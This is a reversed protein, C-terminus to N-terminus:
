FLRKHNVLEMFNEKQGKSILRKQEKIKVRNGEIRDIKDVNVIFSRHIRIIPVDSTNKINRYLKIKQFFDFITENRYTRVLTFYVRYYHYALHANALLTQFAKLM